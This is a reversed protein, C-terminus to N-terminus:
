NIYLMSWNWEQTEDQLKANETTNRQKIHEWQICPKSKTKMKEERFIDALLLHIRHM